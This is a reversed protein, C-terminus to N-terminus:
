PLASKAVQTENDIHIAVHMESAPVSYCHLNFSSSARQSGAV